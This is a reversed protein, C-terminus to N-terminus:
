LCGPRQAPSSSLTQPTPPLHPHLPLDASTRHVWWFWGRSGAWGSEHTPSAAQGLEETPGLKPRKEQFSTEWWQLLFLTFCNRPPAGVRVVGGAGDGGM